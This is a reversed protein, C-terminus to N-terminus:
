KIIKGIIEVSNLIFGNTNMVFNSEPYPIQRFTKHLYFSRSDSRWLLAESDYDTENTLQKLTNNSLDFLFVQLIYDQHEGTILLTKKDPSISATSIGWLTDQTTGDYVKKSTKSALDYLYISFKQKQGQEPIIFCTYVMTSGDQSWDQLMIFPGFATPSSSCFEDTNKENVLVEIQGNQTDVLCIAFTPQEAKACELALKAGDPSWRIQGGMSGVIEQNLTVKKGTKIERVYIFNGAFYAFKTGDPSLSAMKLQSQEGGSYVLIKELGDPNALYYDPFDLILVRANAASNDNTPTSTDQILNQMPTFQQLAPSAPNATCAVLTTAIFFCMIIKRMHDKIFRWGEQSFIV